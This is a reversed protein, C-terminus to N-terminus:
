VNRKMRNKAESKWEETSVKTSFRTFVVTIIDESVSTDAMAGRFTEMVFGMVTEFASSDMDITRTVVQDKRRLWTDVVAKIANIRRTSLQSTPEGTREAERREWAISGAEEALGVMASQLVDTSEPSKKVLQILPDEKLAAKKQRM